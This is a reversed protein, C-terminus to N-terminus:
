ESESDTLCAIRLISQQKSFEGNAMITKLCHCIERKLAIYAAYYLEWSEFTTFHRIRPAGLEPLIIRMLCNLVLAKGRLASPCNACGSGRSCRGDSSGVWWWDSCKHLLCWRCWEIWTIVSRRARWAGTFVNAWLAAPTALEAPM